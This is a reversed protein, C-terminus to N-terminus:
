TELHTRNKAEHLLLPVIKEHALLASAIKKDLYTVENHLREIEQAMCLVMGDGCLDRWEEGYRLAHLRGARDQKITYKGDEVTVCLLDGM